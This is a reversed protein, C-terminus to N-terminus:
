VPGVPSSSWIPSISRPSRKTPSCPMSSASRTGRRANSHPEAILPWGSDQAFQVIGAVDAADMGDGAVVIGRESSEILDLLERPPATQGRSAATWPANDPRGDIPWPFGVGDDSPTLPERLPLNLHVPGAPAGRAGTIGRGRPQGAVALLAVADARSEPVGVDASWRVASGYLRGPRRDPQRRDRAAGAAPRRDAGAAAGAVPGSGAGRRPLPRGRHGVHVAGAGVSRDRARHRTRRLSASREDIRVHLRIAHRRGRSRPRAPDVALGARARRRHRRPPDARRRAVLAFASGPTALAPM